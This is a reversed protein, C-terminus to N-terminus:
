TAFGEQPEMGIGHFVELSGIERGRSWGWMLGDALTTSLETCLWIWKWEAKAGLGEWLRGTSV